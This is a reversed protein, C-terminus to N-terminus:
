LSHLAAIAAILLVLVLLGVGIGVWARGRGRLKGHSKKIRGLATIGMVGAVIAGAVAGFGGIFPLLLSAFSGIGIWMAATATKEFPPKDVKGTDALAWKSYAIHDVTGMPINQLGTQAGTKYIIDNGRQQLVIAPVVRGDALYLTDCDNQWGRAALARACSKRLQHYGIRNFLGMKQGTLASFEKPSLCSIFRQVAAPLKGADQKGLLPTGVAMVATHLLGVMLFSFLLKYMYSIKCHHLWSWNTRAPSGIKVQLKILLCGM